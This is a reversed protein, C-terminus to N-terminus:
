ASRVFLPHLMYLTAAQGSVPGFTRETAFGSSLTDFKTYTVTLTNEGCKFEAECRARLVAIMLLHSFGTTCPARVCRYLDKLFNFLGVVDDRGQFLLLSDPGGDTFALRSSERVQLDEEGRLRQV